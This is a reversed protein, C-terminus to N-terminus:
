MSPGPYSPAQPKKEVALLVKDGEFDVGLGDSMGKLEAVAREYGIEGMRHMDDKIWEDSAEDYVFIEVNCNFANGNCFDSYVSLSDNAQQVVETLSVDGRELQERLETPPTYVACAVVDFERHQYEKTNAISFDVSSHQYRDVLMPHLGADVKAMFDQDRAAQSPHQVLTEGEEFDHNADDDVSLYCVMLENGEENTKYFVDKRFLIDDEVDLSINELGFHKNAPTNQIDLERNSPHSDFIEDYFDDSM